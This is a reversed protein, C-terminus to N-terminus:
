RMKVWNFRCLDEKWNLACECTRPNSSQLSVTWAMVLALGLSPSVLTSHLWCPWSSWWPWPQLCPRPCASWSAETSGSTVMTLPPLHNTLTLIALPPKCVSSLCYLCHSHETLFSMIFRLHLIIHWNSPSVLNLFSNWKTITEKQEGKPFPHRPKARSVAICVCGM